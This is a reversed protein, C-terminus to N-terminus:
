ILKAKCHPILKMTVEMRPFLGSKQSYLLLVQSKIKPLKPEIDYDFKARHSDGARTGLGSKLYEVTARQVMEVHIPPNSLRSKWLEVLHSGDEKFVVRENKTLDRVKKLVEPEVYLCDCLILKNVREPYLAAMEVAISAGFLRGVIHTKKIKLADLFHMVNKMYDAIQPTFEPQDSSGCGLIDIAIARYNKGLMPLIETFEDSSLGAKHLLLVPEGNGVTFYHIQGEPTDAYARKVQHLTM